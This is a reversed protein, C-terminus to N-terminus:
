ADDFRQGVRDIHARLGENDIDQYRIVDFLYPTNLEDLRNLLRLLDDDSVSGYLVLDIDSGPRFTGKARSGYIEVKEVGPCTALAQRIAESTSEPLGFM